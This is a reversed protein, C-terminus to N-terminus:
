SQNSLHRRVIEEARDLSYPADLTRWRRDELVMALEVLDLGGRRALGEISQGHNAMVTARHAYVLEWPVSAIRKADDGLIPFTKM